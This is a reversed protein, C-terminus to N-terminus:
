SDYANCEIVCHYGSNEIVHMTANLKQVHSAVLLSGFGKISNSNHQVGKGNDFYNMKFKKDVMNIHVTISPYSVDIFAHKCSNIVLETFLQGLILARDIDNIVFEGKCKFTIGEVGHLNIVRHALSTFYHSLSISSLKKQNYLIDHIDAISIIRKEMNEALRAVDEGKMKRKEMRLLSMVSHLNNKVRHHVERLLLENERNQEAIKLNQLRLLRSKKIQTYVFILSLIIMLGLSIVSIFWLRRQHNAKDIESQQLLIELEKNRNDTELLNMATEQEHIQLRYEFGLEKVRKEEVYLSDRWQSAKKEFTYAALYDGNAMILPALNRAADYAYQFKGQQEASVYVDKLLSVAEERRKQRIRLLALFYKSELLDANLGLKERIRVSQILYMQALDMDVTLNGVAALGYAILVSDNGKQYLGLAKQYYVLASDFQSKKEMVAGINHYSIAISNMERNHILLTKRYYDIAKDYDELAFYLRGINNYMAAVEIEDKEEQYWKLAEMYYSLAEFFRSQQKLTIGAQKLIEPYLAYKSGYTKAKILYQQSLNLNGQIRYIKGMQLYSESLKEEDKLLRAFELSNIAYSLSKQPNSKLYFQSSDMTNRYKKSLKEYSDVSWLSVHSVLLLAVVMFVRRFM